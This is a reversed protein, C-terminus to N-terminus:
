SGPRRVVTFRSPKRVRSGRTTSRLFYPLALARRLKWNEFRQPKRGFTDSESSGIERQKSLRDQRDPGGKEKRAHDHRDCGREGLRQIADCFGRAAESLWPPDDAAGGCSQHPQVIGDGVDIKQGRRRIGPPKQIAPVCSRGACRSRRKEGGVEEPANRDRRQRDFHHRPQPHAALGQLWRCADGQWPVPRLQEDRVDPLLDRDKAQETPVLIQAASPPQFGPKLRFEGRESYTPVTPALPDLRVNMALGAGALILVAAGAAALRPAVAARMLPWLMLAALLAHVAVMEPMPAGVGLFTFHALYLIQGCALVAALAVPLWARLRRMEPDAMAATAASVASLLLPWELLPAATPAAIQVGCALVLISLAFGFYGGWLSSRHRPLFVASAAAALGFGLLAPQWGGLMLGLGLLALAPLAGLIAPSSRRAACALLLTATLLLAAQLELRPLAALRDYYDPADGSGSLLNGVRLFLVAHLFFALATAAGGGVAKPELKAQERVRVWSFSLLAAALGLLGWGLLPRYAVVFLGLLDGFAADEGRAPLDAAFALASAVDLAQGGLDQLSGEDLREATALPSHYLASRGIFAFNFGAIGRRKPITFDTNNPMRAYVLVALSNASPRQVSRRYLDVWEGNGRGTEFMATRGGGGRAEMNIVAGVRAALPHKGFFLKAGDLGLEEADTLLVIVDRAQRGRARTSRVIELAAAVGAADDAAGPSGGVSDHHAMLLLAPKTRDMGPLLGVLNVLERAPAAGFMRLREMSKGALPGAQVGVTLGMQRMRGALYARVRANEPSGTPRPVRSIERVDAMARRASFDQPAADAERPAPPQSALYAILWAALLVAAALALRRM